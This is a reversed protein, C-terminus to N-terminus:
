LPVSALAAEPDDMPEYVALAPGPTITWLQHLQHREDALALDVDDQDPLEVTERPRRFMKNVREFLELGDMSPMKVDSLIIDVENDELYELAEIGNKATAVEFGKRDLFKGVSGLVFEEDDVVLISTGNETAQNLKDEM